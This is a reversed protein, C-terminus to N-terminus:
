TEAGEGRGTKTERDEGEFVDEGDGTEGSITEEGIAKLLWLLCNSSVGGAVWVVVLKM